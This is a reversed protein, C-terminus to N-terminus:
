HPLAVLLPNLDVDIEIRPGCIDRARNSGPHSSPIRVLFFLALWSLKYKTRYVVAWGLFVNRSSGLGEATLRFM